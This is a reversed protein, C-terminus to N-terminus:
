LHLSQHFNCLRWVCGKSLCTCGTASCIRLPVDYLKARCLSACANKLPLYGGTSSADAATLGEPLCPLLATFTELQVHSMCMRQMITTSDVCPKVCPVLVQKDGCHMLLDSAYWTQIRCLLPPSPMSVLLHRQEDNLTHHLGRRGLMDMVQGKQQGRMRAFVVVSSMVAQVVSADAQLLMQEFAPGTVCCQM